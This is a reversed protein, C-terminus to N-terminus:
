PLSIQKILNEDLNLSFNAKTQARIQEISTTPCKAVLELSEKIDFIALNTIIRKVVKTGTLPFSCKEVIKASGDKATHEM